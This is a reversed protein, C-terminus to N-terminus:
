SISYLLHPIRSSSPRCLHPRLHEQIGETSGFVSDPQFAGRVGHATINLSYSDQFLLPINPSPSAGVGRGLIGGSYIALSEDGRERADFRSHKIAGCRGPTCGRHWCAREPTCIEILTVSYPPSCPVRAVHNERSPVYWIMISVGPLLGSSWFFPPYRGQPM